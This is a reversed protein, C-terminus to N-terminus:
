AEELDIEIVICGLHDGIVMEFPGYIADSREEYAFLRLPTWLPDTRFVDEVFRSSLYRAARLHLLPLSVLRSCVSVSAPYTLRPHFRRKM